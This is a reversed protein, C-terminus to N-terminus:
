SRWTRRRGRAVMVGVDEHAVAAQHLADALFRDRHGAVVLEAPQDGEPVVIRDRDVARGAERDGVVLDLAEAGGAPVDLLDVAVVGVRDAVAMMAARATVSLGDMIAQLVMM